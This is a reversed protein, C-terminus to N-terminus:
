SPMSPPSHPVPLAIALQTSTSKIPPQMGSTKNAPSLLTPFRLRVQKVVEMLADEEILMTGHVDPRDTYPELM